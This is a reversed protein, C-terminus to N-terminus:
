RHGAYTILMLVCCQACAQMLTGKDAEFTTIIASVAYMCAICEQCSRFRNYSNSRTLASYAAACLFSAVYLKHLQVTYSNEHYTDQLCPLVLLWILHSKALTFTAHTQTTHSLVQIHKLSAAATLATMMVDVYQSACTCNSCCLTAKYISFM